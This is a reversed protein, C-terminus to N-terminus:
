LPLLHNNFKKEKMTMLNFGSSFCKQNSNVTVLIAPGSEREIEDLYSNYKEIIHFDIMNYKTNLVIYFIAGDRIMVIQQDGAKERVEQISLPM